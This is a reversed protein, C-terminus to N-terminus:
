ILQSRRGEWVNDEESILGVVERRPRLSNGLRKVKNVTESQTRKSVFTDFTGCVM